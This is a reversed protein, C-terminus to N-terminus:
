SSRPEELKLVPRNPHEETQRQLDQKLEDVYSGKLWVEKLEYLNELGYIRLSSGSSCHVILVEVVLTLREFTIRLKSTCEIMIIPPMCRSLEEGVYLECDITPKISVRDFYHKNRIRSFDQLDHQTLVTLSFNFKRLDQLQAVWGPLIQVHGFVKLCELTKPPQCIHDFCAFVGGKDEVVKVSLSKLQGHGSIASCFEQWCERNVGSIGLRHLQTLKKIEKLIGKGKGCAVNINVVGLTQLATLNGIKAPVMVGGHNGLGRKCFMSLMSSVLTPPSSQVATATVEGENSTSKNGARIYQLKQLNLIAKPLTTISTDRVDLTQLQRLRSVSDPLRTIKEHGRLSLFKLRPMLKGIHKLDDNKIDRSADELDLVRLLKMKKSIIFSEWKGIVTLSRLRSFDIDDFVIKDRDWSGRITLHRGARQSNLGCHGELAFVPNDEMPRSIIYEHFFRNNVQCVTQGKKQQIITLKVLEDLLGTGNDEAVTHSTDRCYGEAIWRRQLRRRRIDHNAPFISMYFICPKLSDSCADFYRDFYSQMWDFLARLSHFRPDRELMGMFEGDKQDLLYKALDYTDSARGKEIETAFFESMAVIVKLIGGCKAIVLKSVEEETPRLESYKQGWTIKSFFNLASDTELSKVNVVRSKDDICHTAVREENTIVVLCSKNATADTLFSAKILDWDDTSRLGDIVVLCRNQHMIRRCGHIPDQGEVIGVAAAEKAQPDDSQFDLLLRRSLETLNFPSPVDVWGYVKFASRVALQNDIVDGYRNEFTQCLGLMIHSYMSRVLTSKGVGAIGWVTTVGPVMRYDALRYASEAQSGILPFRNAWDRAKVSRHSFLHPACGKILPRDVKERGGGLNIAQDKESVVYKAVSDENTIVIICGKNDLESLFFAEKIEDWEGKTQLGDIVVLCKHRRLIKRCDQIPVRPDEMIDVAAIRKAKLDDSRFDLLLRRSFAILDFPHQVDVWSFMTFKEVTSSAMSQHEEFSREVSCESRLMEEYYLGRVIDSKKWAGDTGWLSTVRGHAILQNYNHLDRFKDHWERAEERRISLFRDGRSSAWRGAGSGDLISPNLKLVALVRVKISSRLVTDAELEHFSILAGDEGDVCYTAIDNERTLVIICGRIPKALFADKISDWDDKSDLGNIVVLCDEKRLFKCCEQTLQSQSMSWVAAIEEVQDLDESLFNMLLRRSFAKLKFKTTVDVWSHRKFEAGEFQKSKHMISSYVKHIITSIKRSSKGWVSILGRCSIQWILEGKGSLRGISLIASGAPSTVYPTPIILPHDIALAANPCRPRALPLLLCRSPNVRSESPLPWNIFQKQKIELLTQLNSLSFWCFQKIALCPAPCLVSSSSTAARPPSGAHGAASARVPPSSSSSSSPAAAQLRLRSPSSGQLCRGCGTLSVPPSGSGRRSADVSTEGRTATALYHSPPSRPHRGVHPTIASVLSASAAPGAPGDLGAPAALGTSGRTAARMLPPLGQAPVGIASAAAPHPAAHLVCGEKKSIACIPQSLGGDLQSVQYPEGTCLLALRLHKTSVVIRSGNKRDPLHMRIADWEAKSSVEELLILYKHEKVMQVLEHLALPAACSMVMENAQRSTKCFQTLLNNLFETPSFPHTLKVWARSQFEQCIEADGHVKWFISSTVQDDAEGCGWVSIVQLDQDQRKLLSTLQSLGPGTFLSNKQLNEYIGRFLSRSSAGNGRSSLILKELDGTSRWKGLEKWVDCLLHFASTAETVPALYETATVRKSNLDSGSGSGSDGILRYRMNRQSVDEVRAKLQKLEAVGVDLPLPPLCYLTKHWCRLLWGWWYSKIDLHIVIEVQDEVDFALTRVQRVWTQVVENKAREKNAVRLFSQIMEFEGTIFVLDDQVKVKLEEEEEIAKKVLSLTGEVATKALGLGLQAM